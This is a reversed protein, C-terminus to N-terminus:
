AVASALVPRLARIDSNRTRARLTSADLELLHAGRREAALAARLAGIRWERASHTGFLEVALPELPWREGGLLQALWGVFERPICGSALDAGGWAPLAPRYGPMALEPTLESVSTVLHRIARNLHRTAPSAGVLALREPHALLGFSRGHGQDFPKHEAAALGAVERWFASAFDNADTADLSEIARDRLAAVTDLRAAIGTALELTREPSVSGSAGGALELAIAVRKKPHTLYRSVRAVLSPEVVCLASRPFSM